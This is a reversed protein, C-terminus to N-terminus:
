IIWSDDFELRGQWCVLYYQYGKGRITIAQDDLVHKIREGREPIIPPPFEPNPESKFSLDPRFPESPITALKRCEVLDLINFTSSIGYDSPLELVYANPGVRRM